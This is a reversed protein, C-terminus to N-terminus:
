RAFFLGSAKLSKTAEGTTDLKSECAMLEQRMTEAAAAEGVLFEADEGYLQAGTCHLQAAVTPNTHDGAGAPTTTDPRRPRKRLEGALLEARRELDAIQANKQDEITQHDRNLKAQATEALSKAKRSNEDVAETYAKFDSKLETHARELVIRAKQERGLAWIPVGVVLSTAAIGLVLPVVISKLTSTM